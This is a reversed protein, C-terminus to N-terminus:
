EGTRAAAQTLANVVPQHSQGAFQVELQGADVHVGGRGGAVGRQPGLEAVAEGDHQEVAALM